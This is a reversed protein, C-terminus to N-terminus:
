GSWGGARFESPSAGCHARFASTFNSLHGYGLRGAIQAVPENTRRLLERARSMRVESSLERFGYGEAALRRALTHAPMRLLGALQELTPQCSESEALMMRVWEGYSETRTDRPLTRELQPELGTVVAPDRARLPTDMYKSAIRIRVEPLADASFSVRAPALERYRAAHAPRRMPLCIEYPPPPASAASCVLRHFSVAEMEALTTLATHPMAVTPYYRVTAFLRSRRYELVSAPTIIAFYKSCLRLGHDVTRCHELAYGLAGHLGFTIRRGLEFGLDSRGTRESMLDIVHGFKAFPIPEVSRRLSSLSIGSRKALERPELGLEAALEFALAVYRAPFTSHRVIM